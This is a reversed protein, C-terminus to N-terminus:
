GDDKWRREADALRTGLEELRRRRQEVDARIQEALHPRRRLQRALEDVSATHAKAEALAGRLVATDPLPELGDVHALEVAIEEELAAVEVEAEDEDGSDALLAEVTSRATDLRLLIADRRTELILAREWAAGAQELAAIDGEAAELLQDITGLLTQAQSQRLKVKSGPVTRGHRCRQTVEKSAEVAFFEAGVATSDVMFSHERSPCWAWGLTHDADVHDFSWGAERAQDMPKRWHAKKPSPWTDDPGLMGTM